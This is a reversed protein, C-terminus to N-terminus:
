KSWRKSKETRNICKIILEKESKTIQNAKQKKQLYLIIRETKDAPNYELVTYCADIIGQHRLSLEKENFKTSSCGCLLLSFSLLLYIKKM